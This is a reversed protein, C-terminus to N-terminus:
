RTREGKKGKNIRFKKPVILHSLNVLEHTKYNNRVIGKRRRDNLAIQFRTINPANAFNRFAVILKTKDTRGDTRVSCSPESKVSKWSIQYKLIKRFYTSFIWTENFRVLIVPIKCSSRRVNIIIDRETRRLIVFTKPLTKSFILVCKTNLLEKGFITGKIFYHPFIHYLWVPGSSLIILRMRM